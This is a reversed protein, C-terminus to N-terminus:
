LMLTQEKSKGGVGKAQCSKQSINRTMGTNTIKTQVYFSIPRQKRRRKNTLNVMVFYKLERKHM